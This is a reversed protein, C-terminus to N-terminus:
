DVQAARGQEARTAKPSPTKGNIDQLPASPEISCSLLRVIVDVGKVNVELRQVKSQCEQLSLEVLFLLFVYDGVRPEQTLSAEQRIVVSVRFMLRGEFRAARVGLQVELVVFFVPIKVAVGTFASM